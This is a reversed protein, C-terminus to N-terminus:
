AFVMSGGFFVLIQSLAPKSNPWRRQRQALMLAASTLEEHRSPM